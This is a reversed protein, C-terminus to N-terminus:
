RLQSVFWTVRADPILRAFLLTRALANLEQDDFQGLAEFSCDSPDHCLGSTLGLDVQCRSDLM